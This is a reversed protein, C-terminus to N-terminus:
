LDGRTYPIYNEEVAHKSCLTKVWTGLQHLFGEAGCHECTRWALAEAAQILLDHEPFINTAYFRLGGYKEKIQMVEGTWGASKLSVLLDYVLRDWGSPAEYNPGLDALYATIEMSSTM